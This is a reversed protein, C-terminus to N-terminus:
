AKVRSPKKLHSPREGKMNGEMWLVEADGLVLGNTRQELSGYEVQIAEPMDGNRPPIIIPELYLSKRVHGTQIPAPTSKWPAKGVTKVRSIPTRQSPSPSAGKRKTQSKPWRISLQDISKGRDHLNQLTLNDRRTPQEEPNADVSDVWDAIRDLKETTRSQQSSSSPTEARVTFQRSKGRDMAMGLDLFPDSDTDVTSGKDGESQFFAAGPSVLEFGDPILTKRPRPGPTASSPKTSRRLTSPPSVSAVNANATDQAAKTGDEQESFPDISRGSHPVEPNATKGVRVPSPPAFVVSSVRSNRWTVDDPVDQPSSLALGRASEQEWLSIEPGKYVFRAKSLDPPGPFQTALERVAQISDHPNPVDSLLTTQPTAIQQQANFATADYVQGRAIVQPIKRADVIEYQGNMSASTNLSDRQISTDSNRKQFTVPPALGAVKEHFDSEFTAPVHHARKSYSEIRESQPRSKLTEPLLGQNTPDFTSLRLHLRPAGDGYHITVRQKSKEEKVSAFETMGPLGSQITMTSQRQTTTLYHPTKRKLVNRKTNNTPKEKEKVPFPKFNSPARPTAHFAVAAPSLQRLTSLRPNSILQRLGNETSSQVISVRLDETADVGKVVGICLCARSLMRMIRRTLAIGFGGGAFGIITEVIGFKAAACVWATGNIFYSKESGETEIHRQRSIARVLRFFTLCSITAQFVTLLALTLSTFFVWLSEDRNSTFGSAINPRIVGEPPPSINLIMVGIFSAVENFIIIAPIFLILTLKTINKIRNPLTELLEGSTFLFLFFTYFFIPLFSAVGLGLDFGRFVSLSDRVAPVVDSFLEIGSLILYIWGEATLLLYRKGGNWNVFLLSTSFVFQLATPTIVLFSELRTFSACRLISASSLCISGM